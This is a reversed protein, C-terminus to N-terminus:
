IEILESVVIKNTQLVCTGWSLGVGFGCVLLNLKETQLRERMTQVMTLPISASSTNGFNKLSTPVKEVPLKLKKRIMENMMLNAQHFVFYDLSDSDINFASMTEKVSAPAQNIGFSFVDMGELIIDCKTRIVDPEIQEEILSAATVPNRAGGDPIIIAKYGSGDTGLTFRITEASEKSELATASGADGFLMAATKDKQNVSKSATDGCLLLAKKVNSAKMLATITSLGYVFGSCGLTMDFAICSKPLGLKDQLIPATNPLIYDFTQSVFILLEIDSKEWKLDAILKEAAAYCLDSTCLDGARFREVGTVSMFKAVDESKFFPNDKNEVIRKPVAVAMGVLSIGDITQQAM